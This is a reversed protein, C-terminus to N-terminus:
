MSEIEKVSSVLMCAQTRMGLSICLFDHCSACSIIFESDVKDSFLISSGSHVPLNPGAQKRNKKVRWRKNHASGACQVFFKCKNNSDKCRHTNIFPPEQSLLQTSFLTNSNSRSHTLPTALAQQKQSFFLTELSIDNDQLDWGCCIM